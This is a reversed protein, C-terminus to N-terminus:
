SGTAIGNRQACGSTGISLACSPGQQQAWVTQARVSALAIPLGILAARRFFERREKVPSEATEKSLSDVTRGNDAM